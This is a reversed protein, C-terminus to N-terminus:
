SCDYGWLTEDSCDAGSECEPYCMISMGRIKGTFNEGDVPTLDMTNKTDDNNTIIGEYFGDASIIISNDLPRVDLSGAVYDFIEFSYKYQDTMNAVGLISTAHHQFGYEFDVLSLGGEILSSGYQGGDWLDYGASFDHNSILNDCAKNFGRLRFNDVTLTQHANCQVEFATYVANSDSRVVGFHTGISHMQALGSDAALVFPDVGGTSMSIIDFSFYYNTNISIADIFGISEVYGANTGDGLVLQEGVINVASPNSSTTWGNSFVDNFCGNIVLDESPSTKIVETMLINDITIAPEGWFDMGLTSSNYKGHILDFTYEGIGSLEIEVAEEFDWAQFLVTSANSTNFAIVEFSIQYVKGPVTGPLSATEIYKKSGVTEVKTLQNGVIVWEPDATIWGTLDGTEFDGNVIINSGYSYEPYCIGCPAPDDPCSYGWLAKESCDAVSDCEPYQKVTLNRIKGTFSSGYFSTDLSAQDNVLIGTKIGDGSLDASGDGTIYIKVSGSVYDFIEFTYKVEISALTANQLNTTNVSATDNSNTAALVGVTSLDWGSDIRWTGVNEDWLGTPDFVFGADPILNDCNPNFERMHVNDIIGNFPTRNAQFLISPNFGWDYGPLITGTFTGEKNIALTYLSDMEGFVITLEQGAPMSVIEFTYVYLTDPKWPGGENYITPWPNVIDTFHLQGNIIEVDTGGNMWGYNIDNDFCGNIIIDNTPLNLPKVSVGNIKADGFAKFFVVQLEEQEGINAWSCFTIVGTSFIAKISIGPSGVGGFTYVYMGSQNEAIDVTIAYLVAPYPLLEPIAEVYAIESGTGTHIIQGNSLTWDARLDLGTADDFTTNLVLEAGYTNKSIDTETCLDCDGPPIVPDIPESPTCTYIAQKYAYLTSKVQWYANKIWTPIPPSIYWCYFPLNTSGLQVEWTFGNILNGPDTYHALIAEKQETSLFDNVSTIKYAQQEGAFNAGKGIGHTSFGASTHEIPEIKTGQSRCSNPYNSM